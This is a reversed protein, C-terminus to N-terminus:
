AAKVTKWTERAAEVVQPDFQSGSSESLVNLADELSRAPKYPRASMIADAADAVALIRSLLPIDEGALGDPYGRGDWREHHHGAIWSVESLHTINRLIDMTLQSHNKVFWFESSSLPGTKDIISKRVAVKGADHLLGAFRLKTVENHPLGMTRAIEASYVSVRESHGATSTHKNDITKAFLTLIKAITNSDPKLRPKPLQSELGQVLAFLGEEDCLEEFLKEDAAVSQFARAVGPAVESGSIFKAYEVANKPSEGQKFLRSLDASDAMRIFQAGLSIEDEYKRNPYGIGNWWEHHDAAYDAALEMGPVSRLISASKHAHAVVEPKSMQTKLTPYRVIHAFNGIVGIDHLLGALFVDSAYEPLEKEAMCAAVAAVRWGHYLRPDEQVDIIYSLTVILDNYLKPTFCELQNQHAISVEKSTILSPFMGRYNLGPVSVM